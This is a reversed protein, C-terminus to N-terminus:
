ERVVNLMVFRPAAEGRQQVLSKDVLSALGEFVDLTGNPSCVAEAAELTCGGAFVALRRFIAREDTSLLEYSWRVAGRLTQQREPLSRDGAALITLGGQLRQLLAAPPLLKVRAAALEIALPLGDLLACIAAVAAANEETLAFGDRVAQAREVFLAVAPSRKTETLSADSGPLALPPVAYEHEGAVHVAARSTALLRLGACAQLLERVLAAADLVQEFNDLVLLLQRSRLFTKLLETAPQQADGSLGLAQGIAPAVGAPETIRDLEVLWVGDPFRSEAAPEDLFSAAVALALRTKGTGGPGTLTVLRHRALRERVQALERERGILDTLTAPLNTRVTRAGDVSAVDARLASVPRPAVGLRALARLVDPLWADQPRALLEIWQRGALAYRVEAPAPATDLLLPLLPKNEEVALNLERQVNPSRYAQQSGLVAVVAAGQIARVIEASWSSGGPIAQRDIWVGIGAAELADALALARPREASGYSLFVQPMGPDSLDVM